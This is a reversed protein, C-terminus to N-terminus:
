LIHDFVQGEINVKIIEHVGGQIYGLAINM